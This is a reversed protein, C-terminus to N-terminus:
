NEIFKLLKVKNEMERAIKEWKRCREANEGKFKGCNWEGGERGSGGFEAVTRARPVVKLLFLINEM